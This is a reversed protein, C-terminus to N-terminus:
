LGIGWEFGCVRLDVSVFGPCACVVCLGCCVPARSIWRPTCTHACAMSVLACLKTSPCVSVEVYVEWACNSIDECKCDTCM